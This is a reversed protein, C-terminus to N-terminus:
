CDKGFCSYYRCCHLLLYLSYSILFVYSPMGENTQVKDVLSIEAYSLYASDIDRLYITSFLQVPAAAGETFSVTINRQNNAPDLFLQPLDNICQLVIRTAATLSWDAGDFVATEIRRESCTLNLELNVYYVWSLFQLM